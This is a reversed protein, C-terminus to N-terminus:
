KGVVNRLQGAAQQNITELLEIQKIAAQRNNLNFYCLALNYHAEVSQPLHLAKVILSATPYFYQQTAKVCGMEFGTETEM